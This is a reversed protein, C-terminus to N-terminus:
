LLASKLFVPWLYLPFFVDSQTLRDAKTIVKATRSVSTDNIAMNIVVFLVLYGRQDTMSETPLEVDSHYCIELTADLSAYGWIYSVCHPNHRHFAQLFSFFFAGMGVVASRSMETKEWGIKGLLSATGAWGRTKFYLGYEKWRVASCGASESFTVTKPNKKTSEVWIDVFEFMQQWGILQNLSRHPNLSKLLQIFFVTNYLRISVSTNKCFPQLELYRYIVMIYKFISIQNFLVSLLVNGTALHM